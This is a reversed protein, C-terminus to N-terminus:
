KEYGSKGNGNVKMRLETMYFNRGAHIIVCCIIDNTIVYVASLLGAFILVDLVDIFMMKRERAYLHSLSFFISNAFIFLLNQGFLISQSGRWVLEEIVATKSSKLATLFLHKKGSRFPLVCGLTIKRNVLFVSLLYCMYSGLVSIPYIIPRFANQPILVLLNACGLSLLVFRFILRTKRSKNVLCLIVLSILVFYLLGSILKAM